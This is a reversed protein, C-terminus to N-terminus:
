SHQSCISYYKLFGYQITHQSIIIYVLDIRCIRAKHKWRLQRNKQPLKSLIGAEVMLAKNTFSGNALETLTQVALKQRRLVAESGGVMAVLPPIVGLEAMLKRRKLDEKALRKIEEAAVEKEDWSGFHLKKVSKQLVMWGSDKDVEKGMIGKEGEEIVILIESDIGPQDSPKFQEKSKAKLQLFRRVKTFFRLKIYTLYLNSSTTTPTNPM